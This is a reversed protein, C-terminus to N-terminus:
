WTGWGDNIESLRLRRMTRHAHSSSRHLLEELYQGKRLQRIDKRQRDEERAEGVSKLTLKLTVVVM